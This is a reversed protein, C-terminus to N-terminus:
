AGHVCDVQEGDVGGGSFCVLGGGETTAAAGLRYRPTPLDFHTWERTASDFMDVRPGGRPNGDQGGETGGAFYVYSGLEASALEYRRISLEAVSWEGSCYLDVIGSGHTNAMNVEGGAFVACDGASASALRM